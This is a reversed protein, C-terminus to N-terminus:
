DRPPPDLVTALDQSLALRFERLDSVLERSRPTDLAELTELTELCFAHLCRASCFVQDRFLAMEAEPLGGVRYVVWDLPIAMGCRCTGPHAVYGLVIRPPTM